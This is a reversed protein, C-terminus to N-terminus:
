ICILKGIVVPKLKKTGLMNSCLMVTYRDKSKKGGRWDKRDIVLSQDPMLKYFISTEDCNFIDYADYHEVMSQLHVKWDDITTPDVSRAEGGITRFRINCRTRFHELWGNSARFSTSNDMQQALDRACYELIPNSIPINKPRRLTFSEYVHTNLDKNFENKLKRKFNKNINSEYDDTYETKRKMINSVAGISIQFKNSLQRYSLGNEQDKILSIKEELCLEHRPTM